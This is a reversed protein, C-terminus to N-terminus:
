YGILKNHIDYMDFELKRLKEENEETLEIIKDVKTDLENLKEIIQDLKNNMYTDM